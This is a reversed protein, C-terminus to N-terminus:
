VLGRGIGILADLPATAARHSHTSVDPLPARGPFALEIPEGLEASALARAILADVDSDAVATSGAIGVRGGSVVRLNVGAEESMGAAKLRGSEFSVSTREVRRWLADAGGVGGAARRRVRELLREIM